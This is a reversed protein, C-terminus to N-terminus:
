LGKLQLGCLHALRCFRTVLKLLPHSASSPIRQSDIGRNAAHLAVMPGIILDLARRQVCNVSANATGSLILHLPNPPRLRVTIRRPRPHHPIALHRAQLHAASGTSLRTFRYLRM